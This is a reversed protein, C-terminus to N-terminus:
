RKSEEPNYIRETHAEFGSGRGPRRQRPSRALRLASTRTLSLVPCHSCRPLSLMPLLRTLMRLLPSTRAAVDSAYASVDCDECRSSCKSVSNRELLAPVVLLANSLMRSATALHAPQIPMTEDVACARAHSLVAISHNVSLPPLLAYLPLLTSRTYISHCYHMSLPPLLAHISTTTTCPYLHCCHVALTSLTTTTCPYLHCYHMSLTAATYQTLLYLSLLAHISPTTTRPYLHYYHISLTAATYQSHLYLPLLTSRTYISHCCHVALTSLTAATYQSHLYLTTATYQTHLYLTTATYQTHLYLTTATYQPLLYSM